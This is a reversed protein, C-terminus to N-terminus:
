IFIFMGISESTKPFFIFPFLPCLGSGFLTALGLFTFFFPSQKSDFWSSVFKIITNLLLSAALGDLFLGFFIIEIKYPLVLLLWCTACMLTQASLVITRIKLNLTM